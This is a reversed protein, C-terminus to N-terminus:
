ATAARRARPGTGIVGGIVVLAVLPPIVTWFFALSPLTAVVILVDSLVVPTKAPARVDSTAATTLVHRRRRVAVAVIAAVALMFLGIAFPVGSTALGIVILVLGVVALVLLAVGSRHSPPVAVAPADQDDFQARWRLWLGTFMALALLLLLTSGIAQGPMKGNGDLIVFLAFLLNFVGVLVALPTFWSQTVTAWAARLGTPRASVARQQQNMARGEEFRWMLDGAVGRLTRGAIAMRAGRDSAGNSARQEFVDSAIEDRRAEVADAPLGRTYLGVWRESFSTM